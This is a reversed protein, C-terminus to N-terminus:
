PMLPMLPMRSARPEALSPVGLAGLLRALSSGCMHSRGLAEVCAALSTHAQHQGLTITDGDFLCKAWPAQGRIGCAVDDMKPRM